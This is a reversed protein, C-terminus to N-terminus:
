ATKALLKDERLEVVGDDSTVVFVNRKQKLMNSIASQRYGVATALDQQRHSKLYEDLPIKTM